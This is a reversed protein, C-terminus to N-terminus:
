RKSPTDLFGSAGVLNLKVTTDATVVVKTGDASIHTRLTIVVNDPSRLDNEFAKLQTDLSRLASNIEDIPLFM